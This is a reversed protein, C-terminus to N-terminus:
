SPKVEHPNVMEKSVETCHDGLAEMENKGLVFYGTMEGKDNLITFTAGRPGNRVNIVGDVM